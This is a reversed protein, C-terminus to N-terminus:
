GQGVDETEKSHARYLTAKIRELAVFMELTQALTPCVMVNGTSDPQKGLTNVVVYFQGHGDCGVRLGSGV